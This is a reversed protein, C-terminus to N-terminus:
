NTTEDMKIWTWEIMTPYKVSWASKLLLWSKCSSFCTFYSTSWIRCRFVVCHHFLFGIWMVNFTWWYEIWDNYSEERPIAFSSMLLQPTYYILYHCLSPISFWNVNRHINMLIRNWDDYMTHCKMRDEVLAILQLVFEETLLLVDAVCHHFLLDIWMKICTWWIRNLWRVDYPVEHPSSCSWHAAICLAWSCSTCHSCLSPISSWNVYGHMNM